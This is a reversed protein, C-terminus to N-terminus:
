SDVLQAPRNGWRIAALDFPAIDVLSVASVIRLIWAADEDRSLLAADEAGDFALESPAGGDLRYDSMHFCFTVEAAAIEFTASAVGGVGDERRDAM